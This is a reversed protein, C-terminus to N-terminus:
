IDAASVSMEQLLSSNVGKAHITSTHPKSSSVSAMTATALAPSTSTGASATSTNASAKPVATVPTSASALQTSKKVAPIGLHLTPPLEIGYRAPDHIVAALALLKPAYTATEVPLHQLDWFGIGKYWKKQQKIAKNINGPGYNYAALALMWDDQFTQHLGILFNLAAQTSAVIDQRPDGDACKKLGLGSATDPMLQWYGLAGVKSRSNANCDSEIVPLLALEGPLGRKHTEQFFYNIYPADAELQKYLSKKHAQLIAIQAVVQPHSDEYTFQFDQSMRGWVSASYPQSSPESVTGASLVPTSTQQTSVLSSVAAGISNSAVLFVCSYVVSSLKSNKLLRM